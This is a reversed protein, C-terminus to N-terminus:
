NAAVGAAREMTNGAVVKPARPKRIRPPIGAIRAALAEAAEDCEASEIAADCSEKPEFANRPRGSSFM